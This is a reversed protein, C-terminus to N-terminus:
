GRRMLVRISSASGDPVSVGPNDLSLVRFGVELTPFASHIAHELAYVKKRIEKARRGIYTTVLPEAVDADLTVSRVQPIKAVDDAFRRAAELLLQEADARTPASMARFPVWTVFSLLQHTCRFSAPGRAQYAVDLWEDLDPAIERFRRPRAVLQALVATVNLLRLPRDGPDPWATTIHTM